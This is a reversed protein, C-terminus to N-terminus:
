THSKLNCQLIKKEVLQRDMASLPSDLAKKYFHIAKEMESNRRYIDGKTLPIAFYDTLNYRNELAEVDQVHSPSHCVYSEAIIRNLQIFPSDPKLVTLKEYLYAIAKWDTEKFSSASCHLSSIIAELHFHSLEDAKTACNLYYFGEEIFTKNWLKRDQEEMTLWEEKENLRAPFRSLNFFMLALLAQTRYSDVPYRDLLLRALRIAEFCLDNNIGSKSNTTKYGENFMLYIITQVTNLREDPPSFSKIKLIDDAKRLAQKCRLLAKKVADNQMILANSIERVGFGCLINLTVIVQNKPSFEPNCCMFMLRLQSDEIEETSLIFQSEDQSNLLEQYDSSSFEQTKNERKLANIAKNKAVKMLWGQPNAPVGKYRWSSLAVEFTDQVVDMLTDINNLGFLSTLAAVMKGSSERFLHATLQQVSTQHDAPKKM